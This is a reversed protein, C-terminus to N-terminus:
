ARLRPSYFSPGTGVSSLEVDAAACERELRIWQGNHSLVQITRLLSFLVSSSRLQSYNDLYDIFFSLYADYFRAGLTVVVLSLVWLICYASRM